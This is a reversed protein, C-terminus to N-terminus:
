QRKGRHYLEVVAIPAIGPLITTSIVRFEPKAKRIVLGSLTTQEARL